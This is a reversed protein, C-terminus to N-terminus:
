YRKSVAAAPDRRPTGNPYLMHGDEGLMRKTTSLRGTSGVAIVLLVKTWFGYAVFSVVLFIIRSENDEVGILLWVLLPFPVVWAVLLLTNWARSLIITVRSYATISIDQGCKPCRFTHQKDPWLPPTEPLRVEFPFESRMETYKIMSGPRFEPPNYDTSVHAIHKLMVPFILEAM